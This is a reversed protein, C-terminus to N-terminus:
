LLLLLIFILQGPGLFLPRSGFLKPNKTPPPSRPGAGPQGGEQVFDQTLAQDSHRKPAAQVQPVQPHRHNPGQPGTPAFQPGRIAKPAEKSADALGEQERSARVALLPDLM